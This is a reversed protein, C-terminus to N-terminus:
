ISHYRHRRCVPPRLDPIRRLLEEITQRSLESSSEAPDSPPSNGLIDEDALIMAAVPSDGPSNRRRTVDAYRALFVAALSLLAILLIVDCLAASGRGILRLRPMVDSM